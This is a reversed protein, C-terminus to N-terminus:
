ATVKLYEELWHNADAKSQEGERVYGGDANRIVCWKKHQGKHEVRFLSAPDPGPGAGASGPEGQSLAVDRTTLNHWSLVYVRAWTREAQLVLLEAFLSGDDCTLEIKTYPQLKPAVHAWFAPDIVQKRTVGAEIVAVYVLRENEAFKFRHADLQPQVPPKEQQKDEDM